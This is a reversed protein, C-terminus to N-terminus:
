GGMKPIGFIFVLVVLVVVTWWIGSKKNDDVAPKVQYNTEQGSLSEQEEPDTVTAMTQTIGNGMEPYLSSMPYGHFGSTNQM